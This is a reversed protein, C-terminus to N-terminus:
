NKDIFHAIVCMYNQKTNAAWTDTTLSVREGHEKLFNQLKEKQVDYVKVCNRTATKRSPVVFKPCAKALFKRLGSREAAFPLEDENLMEAFSHKLEDLDFKWTSITGVSSNGPSAILQLTGQKDVVEKNPNKRCIKLHADLSSMGNNKSRCAYLQGCYKCKAKKEGSENKVKTFHNWVDSRPAMPKKKKSQPQEEAADPQEKDVDIVEKEVVQNAVTEETDGM